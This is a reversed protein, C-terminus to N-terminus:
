RNCSAPSSRRARSGSQIRSRKAGSHRAPGRDMAAIERTYSSIPAIFLHSRLHRRAGRRGAEATTSLTEETSGSCSVGVVVDMPGVWGPLSHSQELLIPIPTGHGLVARLVQGGVGSGGLGAIVLNRPQDGKSVTALSDRNITAVAERMQAGSSAVAPLMNSADLASMGKIDDLLLDDIM